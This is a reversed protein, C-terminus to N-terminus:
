KVLAGAASSPSAPARSSSPSRSMDPSDASSFRSETLRPFPVWRGTLKRLFCRCVGTTARIRPWSAALSSYYRWRDIEFGAKEFRRRWEEPNSTFTARRANFWAVFRDRV